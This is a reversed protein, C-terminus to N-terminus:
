DLFQDIGPFYQFPPFPDALQGLEMQASQAGVGLYQPVPNGRFGFGKRGVIQQYEAGAKQAARGGGAGVAGNDGGNRGLRLQHCIGHHASEPRRLQLIGAIVFHDEAAFGGIQDIQPDVVVFHFDPVGGM